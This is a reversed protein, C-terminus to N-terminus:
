LLLIIILIVKKLLFILFSRLAAIKRSISVKKIKRHSLTALFYRVVDPDIRDLKVVDSSVPVYEKERLFEIFQKVDTEYSSRTHVSCGKQIELYIGYDKILKEM